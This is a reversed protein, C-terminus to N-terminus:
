VLSSGIPTSNPPASLVHDRDRGPDAVPEFEAIVRLGSKVRPMTSIARMPWRAARAHRSEEAQPDAIQDRRAARAV